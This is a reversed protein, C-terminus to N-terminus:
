KLCKLLFEPLRLCGLHFADFNFCSYFKWMFQLFQRSDPHIPITFYADKLDIKAFWDNKKTLGRVSDIGEMKFHDYRIFSNLKKLNVIPRYGGSKKPIAFLTSVFGWQHESVPIIANKALMEEVEKDCTDTM